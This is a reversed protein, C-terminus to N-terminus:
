AIVEVNCGYLQERLWSEINKVAQLKWAGDMLEDLKKIQRQNSL